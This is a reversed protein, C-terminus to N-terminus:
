DPFVILIVYFQDSCVKGLMTLGDRFKPIVLVHVPAQPDIDRFALVKEDEYVISSTIEKAIIKDFRFPVLPFLSLSLEKWWCVSYTGSLRYDFMYDIQSKLKSLCYEEIVLFLEGMVNLLFCIKLRCILPLLYYWQGAVAGGGWVYVWRKKRSQADHM